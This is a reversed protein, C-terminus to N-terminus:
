EDSAGGDSSDNVIVHLLGDEYGMFWRVANPFQPAYQQWMENKALQFEAYVKQYEQRIEMRKELSVDANLAHTSLVQLGGLEFDMRELYSVTEDPLEITIEKM